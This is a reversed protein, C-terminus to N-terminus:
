RPALAALSDAQAPKGQAVLARNLGKVSVVRHPTRELAARFEQEAEAPRSFRALEEGLLEHSPKNVTPPGFAYAMSDELVTARRLTALGREDGAGLALLGELELDFVV